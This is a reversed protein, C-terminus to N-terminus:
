RGTAGWLPANPALQRGDDRETAQGDTKAAMAPRREAKLPNGFRALWKEGLLRSGRDNLHGSDKYLPIGDMETVCRIKDCMLKDTEVWVVEPYELKLESFFARVGASSLKHKKFPLTCDLKRHFREARLSCDNLGDPLEPVSPFVLVQEAAAISQRLAARMGQKFASRSKVGNASLMDHNYFSEYAGALVIMDYRERTLLRSVYQNRPLFKRNYEPQDFMALEVGPLFPTNSRTMDYGRLNADKGLVDLFGTFHNAHSDGVVLFNVKGQARGLVCNDPALPATPPGENCRGRVKEAFALMAESKQNLSDPFRAPLGRLSVIGIAAAIVVAIPAGAGAWVVRNPPLTLFRRAPLELWRYTLWSLSITAILVGLGIPITIAIDNIHLFAIIPWHWLYAPYSIKGVLKAAPTSLGKGVFTGEAWRLLMATGVVPVLAKYGPFPTHDDYTVAAYFIMAMGALSAFEAWKRPVNSVSLYALPM